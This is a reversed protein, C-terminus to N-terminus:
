RLILMKPHLMSTGGQGPPVAVTSDKKDKECVESKDHYQIMNRM